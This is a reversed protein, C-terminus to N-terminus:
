VSNLELKLIFNRYNIKLLLFLKRKLKERDLNILKRLEKM